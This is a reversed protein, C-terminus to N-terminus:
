PHRQLWAVTLEFWEPLPRYFFGHALGTDLLHEEVELDGQYARCPETLEDSRERFSLFRGTPTPERRTELDALSGSLCAGLLVVRLRPQQLKGSVSLAVAAGMSGGVIAIHDIPVGAELLQEIEAAAATAATDVSQGRPRLPAHVEFGADTFAEVIQDLEYVGYRPHIPRREQTEQLIRGHFYFLHRTPAAALSPAPPTQSGLALLLALWM